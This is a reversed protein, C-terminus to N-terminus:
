EHRLVEIPDVGAAKHAPLYCALLAVATLLGTCAAFTAPDTPSVEFLLTSMVPAIALGAGTGIAVGIVIWGLAQLLFM